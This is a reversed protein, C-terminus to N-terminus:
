DIIGKQRLQQEAEEWPITEENKALELDLLDELEEQLYMVVDRGTQGNRKLVDLDIVLAKKRGEADTIYNIAEM